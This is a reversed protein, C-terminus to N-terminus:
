GPRTADPAAPRGGPGGHHGGHPGGHPGRGGRPQVEATTLQGNADRDMARFMAGALVQLEVLTVRGDADADIARFMAEGRQQMREPMPRDARVPMGAPRYLRFEEITVGGDHNADVEAFRATIAAQFEERSVQGDSNRDAMAFLRGAEFAMGGFAPGGPGRQAGAGPTAPPTASPPSPQALAAGSGALWTAAMLTWITNRM